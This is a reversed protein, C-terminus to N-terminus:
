VLDCWRRITTRSVGYKESMKTQTTQSLEFLLEEKTPRDKIKRKYNGSCRKCRISTSLIEDDCDICYTKHKKNRKLKQKKGYTNIMDEAKIFDFDPNHLENHCNSCLLVCKDVEKKLKDFSNNSLHRINLPFDKNDTHHFVLSSLNKHYGCKSCKGGLLRVFFIKRKVGRITQSFYTNGKIHTIEKCELSCYKTKTIELQKGCNVCNKM